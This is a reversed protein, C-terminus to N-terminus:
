VPVLVATTGMVSSLLPEVRPGRKLRKPMELTGAARGVEDGRSRRIGHYPALSYMYGTRLRPIELVGADRM